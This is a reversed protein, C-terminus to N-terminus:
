PGCVYFQDVMRGDGNGYRMRSKDALIKRTNICLLVDHASADAQTLYHADSTAVLPLGLRNAVEVAGAKCRQQIDLGNNQIEVYFNKGFVRAFWGALRAAEDLDEKLILESFEGSATARSSCSSPTM